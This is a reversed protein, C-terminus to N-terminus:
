LSHYQLVVEIPLRITTRKLRSAKLASSLIAQAFVLMSAAQLSSTHLTILKSFIHMQAIYQFSSRHDKQQLRSPTKTPKSSSQATTIASQQLRHITQHSKSDNLQRTIDNITSHHLNATPSHQPRSKLAGARIRRREWSAVEDKLRAIWEKRQMGAKGLTNDVVLGMDELWILTLGLVCIVGVGDADLYLRWTCVLCFDLCLELYAELGM